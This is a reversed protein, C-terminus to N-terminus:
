CPGTDTSSTSNLFGIVPMAPQQARAALPWAAAAGGLLTIFERRKMRHVEDARDRAVTDPVTLGLTKATQPQDGARLKRRSCSRCIPPSRARSSQPRRLHRGPRFAIRCPQWRLEILGGAVPFERTRISECAVRPAGGIAILRDRRSLFFADASVVLAGVRPAACPARIGSRYRRTRHAAKLIVLQRGSHAGSSGRLPARTTSPMANTSQVFCVCDCSGPFYSM